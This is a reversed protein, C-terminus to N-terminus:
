EKLIALGTHKIEKWLTQKRFFAIVMLLMFSLVFLPYALISRIIGSSFTRNILTTLLAIIVTAIYAIPAMLALSIAITYLLTIDIIIALVVSLLLYSISFVHIFPVTFFVASDFGLYWKKGYAARILKPLKAKAVQMIGSCWRRRQILSVKFSNPEEDYAIADPVWYIREGMIACEAAFDADEAMASTNWGSLKELLDHHFAFGTGILKASLGCVARARNFFTNFMSFYIGYCGAVWSEHPNGAETRGKAVKAGACFADNMRTLFDLHATNDADFVCYVDYHSVATISFLAYRIAEGKCSTTNDCMIVKAGATRAADATNDTCNNVAVYIEFMEEPYNQMKLSKILTGIVSQENRAAIIVAFRHLSTAKPVRRPRFIACSAIIFFYVSFVRFVLYVLLTIEAFIEEM